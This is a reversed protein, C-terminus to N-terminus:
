KGVRLLGFCSFLGDPFAPWRATLGFPFAAKRLPSARAYFLLHLATSLLCREPTSTHFDHHHRLTHIIVKEKANGPVTMSIVNLFGELLLGPYTGRMEIDGCSCVSPAPQNYKTSGLGSGEHISYCLRQFHCCFFM